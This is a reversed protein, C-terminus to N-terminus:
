IYKYISCHVPYGGGYVDYKLRRDLKINFVHMYNINRPRNIINLPSKMKSKLGTVLYVSILPILPRYMIDISKNNVGAKLKLIELFKGHM